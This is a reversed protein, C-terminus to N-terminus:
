MGVMSYEWYSEQYENRNSVSEVGPGYYSQFCYTFQFFFGIVEDLNSGMVKM